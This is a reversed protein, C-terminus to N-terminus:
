GTRGRRCRIFPEESRLRPRGISRLHRWQRFSDGAKHRMAPQDAASRWRPVRGMVSCAPRDALRRVRSVACAAMVVSPRYAWVATLQQRTEGGESIGNLGAKLHQTLIMNTKQLTTLARVVTCVIALLLFVFLFPDVCRGVM